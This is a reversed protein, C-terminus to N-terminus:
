TIRYDPLFIKQCYGATENCCVSPNKHSQLFSFSFRSIFESSFGSYPNSVLTKMFDRTDTKLNELEGLWLKKHQRFLCKWKRFQSISIEYRECISEISRFQFIHESLVRLVFFLGYTGYPIIHDPLIAHTHHCSDCIVRMVSITCKHRRGNVFDTITRGYYAHVHCEGRSGCVPCTEKSPVFRTMFRDFLIKSSTKINLMKIFLLNKRIM